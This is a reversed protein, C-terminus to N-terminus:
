PLLSKPVCFPFWLCLCPQAVLPSPPKAVTAAAVGVLSLSLSGHHPHRNPATVTVPDAEGRDREDERVTKRERKSAQRHSTM